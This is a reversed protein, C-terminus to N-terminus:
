LDQLKFKLRSILFKLYYNLLLFCIIKKEQNRHEQGRRERLQQPYKITQYM